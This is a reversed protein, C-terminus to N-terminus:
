KDFYYSNNEKELMKELEFNYNEVDKLVRKAVAKKTIGGGYLKMQRQFEKQKDKVTGSYSIHGMVKHYIFSYASSYISLLKIYHDLERRNSEYVRDFETTLRKSIFKNRVSDNELIIEIIDNPASSIFTSSPNKKFAILIDRIDNKEILNRKSNSERTRDTLVIDAIVNKFSELSPRSIDSNRKSTLHPLENRFYKILTISFDRRFYLKENDRYYKFFDRNPDLERAKALIVNRSKKKKLGVPDQNIKHVKYGTDSFLLEGNIIAVVRDSRDWKIKTKKEILITSGINEAPKETYTIDTIGNINEVFDKKVVIPYRKIEESFPNPDPEPVFPEVEGKKFYTRIMTDFEKLM